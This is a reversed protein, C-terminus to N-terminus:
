HSGASCVIYLHLSGELACSVLKCIYSFFDASYLLNRLDRMQNDNLRLRLSFLCIFLEYKALPPFFITRYGLNQGHKCTPLYM